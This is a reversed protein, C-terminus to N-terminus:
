RATLKYGDSTILVEGGSATLVSYDDTEEQPIQPQWSNGAWSGIALYSVTTQYFTNLPRMIQMSTIDTASKKVTGITAFYTEESPTLILRPPATFPMPFGTNALVYDCVYMSGSARGQRATTSRVGEPLAVDQGWCLQVGNMYRIWNKGMSAIFLHNGVSLGSLLVDCSVHLDGTVQAGPTLTEDLYGCLAVYKQMATILYNQSSIIQYTAAAETGVADTALFRINYSQQASIYGAFVAKGQGSLISTDDRYYDGDGEAYGVVGSIANQGNVPACTFTAKVWLAEGGPDPDGNPKARYCSNITITPKTYAIVTITAQATGTRGRSDTVSVTVSMDGSVNLPGLTATKKNSSYGAGRIAYSKITSGYVGEGTVAVKASSRGQLYLGKFLNVGELAASAKPVVSAPVKLTITKTSRGIEVQGNYTICEITATGSDANPIAACWAVETSFATSTQVGTGTKSYQAFKLSITHTFSTSARKVSINLPSGLTNGSVTVTSARPITTLKITPTDKVSWGSGGGGGPVYFHLDIDLTVSKSGDDNHKIGTVTKLPGTGNYWTDTSQVSVEHTPLASDANMAVGANFKITGAPYYVWGYYGWGSSGSSKVQWGTIKLDSSNSEISYTEEYYIRLSFGKGGSREISGKVGQAM